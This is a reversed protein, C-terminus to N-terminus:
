YGPISVFISGTSSTYDINSSSAFQNSVSTAVTSSNPGGSWSAQDFAANDNRTIYAAMTSTKGGTWNYVVSIQKTSPDYVTGTSTVNGNTDRYVDSLYFYRFYTTTATVISEIGTTATYPSSSTILHYQYTSGTALALVNQWSGESWVRVNGMLSQANTAAAQIKAAQGNESLSPAIIMAIGVMFIAGVAIAVLLEIFSQGSRTDQM